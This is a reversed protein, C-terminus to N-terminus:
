AGAGDLVARVARLLDERSYPKRLLPLGEKKVFNTHVLNESYGSAFLVRLGPRAAVLTERVRPGGQMPMVVDLLALDISGAYAAGLAIAAGGDGASLVTYGAERLVREALARVAADDEAVLITERGGRLPGDLRPGTAAAAREVIPLYVKFTTGKGVESYVQVMGHHQLVIGHVTALGLGTGRGPGKTTFFPEFVRDLIEPPIGAGTDSVSLLVYRGPRAGPHTALYQEDVRVNEAEIVIRGGEPMADRANVCLNVVVQEIQGRDACVTGLSHGPLFRLEIQEGIVRSLMKLLNAVLDNLDLPSPDLVQRRGFALVQKTLATARDAAARAQGLDEALEAPLGPSSAAFDLYGVIAQLLNNFDHAIGGALRGVAELRQSQRLAEETKRQQAHAAELDATRQLVLRRLQEPVRLIRYALLAFAAAALLAVALGLTRWATGWGGRPAVQLRWAGNPVQVPVEVPDRLPGSGASAFTEEAGTRDLRSLRFDYGSEALRGIRIAELLRPLRVLSTAVGWFREEEGVRVFVAVRGALGIGGQKLPFPGALVLRRTAKAAEIDPRHLPSAALDLGIAPENGALPYIHTLVGGPALQLSDIGPYLSYLDPAVQGFVSETGTQRVVAALAHAAALAGSLQQEIASATGQAADRAARRREAVELRDALIVLAGGVALAVALVAGAVALSHRIAKM